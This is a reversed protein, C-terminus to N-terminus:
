LKVRKPFDRRPKPIEFRHPCALLADVLGDNPRRSIKRMIIVDPEDGELFEFADGARVKNRERLKRPLVIQGKTSVKATLV